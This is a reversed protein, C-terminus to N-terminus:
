KLKKKEIAEEYDSIFKSMYDRSYDSHKVQTEGSYMESSSDMMKMKTYLKKKEDAIKRLFAYWTIQTFYAFPNSGKDPDFNEIYQLCNLIGDGIMEEKFGYNSFNPRSALGNAIDILCKGIYDPVQPKPKGEEEAKKVDAKYGKMALLFEANNIYDNKSRRKTAM